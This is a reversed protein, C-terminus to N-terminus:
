CSGLVVVSDALCVGHRQVFVLPGPLLEMFFERLKHRAPQALRESAAAFHAQLMNLVPCLAQLRQPFLEVLEAHRRIVSVDFRLDFIQGSAAKDEICIGVDRAEPLAPEDILEKLNIPTPGFKMMRGVFRAALKPRVIENYPQVLRVQCPRFALLEAAERALDLDLGREIV